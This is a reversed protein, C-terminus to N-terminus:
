GANARVVETVRGEDPDRPLEGARDQRVCIGVQGREEDMEDNSVTAPNAQIYGCRFQGVPQPPLDAPQYAGSRRSERATRQLQRFRVARHALLTLPHSSARRGGAASRRGRAPFSTLGSGTGREEARQTGAVGANGNTTLGPRNSRGPLPALGATLVRHGRTLLDKQSRFPGLPKAEFIEISAM